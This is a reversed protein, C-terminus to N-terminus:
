RVRSPVKGEIVPPNRWPRESAANLTTGDALTVEVVVLAPDNKGSQRAPYGRAVVIMGPAISTSSWGRRLLASPYSQAEALWVGNVGGPGRGEIAFVPHPNRWEVRTVTGSIEVTRSEDFTASIDHHAGVGTACLCVATAILVRM